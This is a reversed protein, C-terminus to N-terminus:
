DVLLWLYIENIRDVRLQVGELNGSTSGL